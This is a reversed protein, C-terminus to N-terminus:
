ENKNGLEEVVKDAIKAAEEMKSLNLMDILSLTYNFLALIANKPADSMLLKEVFQMGYNGIGIFVANGLFVTDTTRNLYVPDPCIKKAKDLFQEPTGEFETFNEELLITAAQIELFMEETLNFEEGNKNPLTFDKM